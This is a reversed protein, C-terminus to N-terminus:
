VVSSNNANPDNNSADLNATSQQSATSERKEVFYTGIGFMVGGVAATVIGTILLISPVGFGPDADTDADACGGDTANREMCGARREIGLGMAGPLCLTIGGFFAVGGMWQLTAAAVDAFSWTRRVPTGTEAESFSNNERNPNTAPYSIASIQNQSPSLPTLHTLHTSNESM